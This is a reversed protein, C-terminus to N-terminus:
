VTLGQGHRCLKTSIYWRTWSNVHPCVFVCVFVCVPSPLVQEAEVCLWVPLLPEYCVLSSMNIVMMLKVGIRLLCTIIYSTRAALMSLTVVHPTVYLTSRLTDVAHDYCVSDSTKRWTCAAGRKTNEHLGVNINENKRQERKIDANTHLHNNRIFKILHTHAFPEM